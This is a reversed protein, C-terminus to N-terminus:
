GNEEGKLYSKTKPINNVDMSRVIDTSVESLDCEEKANETMKDLQQRTPKDSLLIVDTGYKTEQEVIWIKSM